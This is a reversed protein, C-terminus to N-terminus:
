TNVNEYQIIIGKKRTVVSNKLNMYSFHYVM